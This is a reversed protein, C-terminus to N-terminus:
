GKRGKTPHKPPVPVDLADNISEELISAGESFPAGNRLEACIEQCRRANDLFPTQLRQLRNLTVLRLLVQYRQAFIKLIESDRVYRCADWTLEFMADEVRKLLAQDESSIERYSPHHMGGFSTPILEALVADIAYAGSASMNDRSRATAARVADLVEHKVPHDFERAYPLLKELSRELEPWLRTSEMEWRIRKVELAPGSEQELRAIRELLLTTAATIKRASIDALRAHISEGNLEMKRASKRGWSQGPLLLARQTEDQLKKRVVYLIDPDPKVVLVGVRSRRGNGVEEYSLDVPPFIYADLIQGFTAGDYHENRIDQCQGDKFGIILLGDDRPSEGESNALALVDRILEAKAGASGLEVRLKFEFRRSEKANRKILQRIQADLGITVSTAM